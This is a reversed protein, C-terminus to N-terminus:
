EAVPKLVRYHRFAPWRAIDRNNCKGRGYRMTAAASIVDPAVELGNITGRYLM